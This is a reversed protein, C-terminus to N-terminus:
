RGQEWLPPLPQYSGKCAETNPVVDVKIEGSEFDIHASKFSAKYCRYKKGDEQIVTKDKEVIGMRLLGYIKRYCTSIPILQERSIEEISRPRSIVSALIRRSYEDALADFVESAATRDSVLM